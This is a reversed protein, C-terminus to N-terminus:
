GNGGTGPDTEGPSSTVRGTPRPLGLRVVVRTGSGVHSDIAISGGMLDLLRRSIALGLGSGGHRRTASGDAQEFLDFLREQQEPAMGIGTDRIAVEFRGETEGLEVDDLVVAVEGRDTFKIANRVLESIVQELRQGDGLWRIGVLRPSVIVALGLGKAEAEGAFHGELRTAISDLTFPREDLTLTGAEIRTLDLITDVLQSLQRAATLVHDLQQVQEAQETKRRVVNTFGVIVHLPTRLEHSMTAMFASKVRNAGEAADKAANLDKTREAVLRELYARHEELEAAFQERQELTKGLQLHEQFMKLRLAGAYYGLLMTRLLVSAFGVAVAVVGFEGPQQLSMDASSIGVLTAGVAVSGLLWLAMGQRVPLRMVAFGFVIIIVGLFYSVVAPALVMFLLQVAVAYAMQWATLQPNASRESIGSWHLAGFLVVHSLGALPHLAVVHGDVLSGWWFLLLCLTDVLYSVGIALVMRLRYVRRQRARAADDVQKGTWIDDLDNLM